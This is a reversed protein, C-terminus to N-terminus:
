NTGNKRFDTYLLFANEIQEKNFQPKAYQIQKVSEEKRKKGLSFWYAVSAILEYRQVVTLSSFIKNCTKDELENVLNIKKQYKEDLKLNQIVELGEPIIQYVDETLDTSYPGHLYWCFGYKLPVGIDQALFIKKQLLIRDQLTQISYCKLERLVVATAKLTNDM